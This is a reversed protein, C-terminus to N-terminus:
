PAMCAANAADVTLNVTRVNTVVDGGTIIVNPSAKYCDNGAEFGDIFLFYEGAPVLTATVDQDNEICAVTAGPCGAAITQAPASAGAAVAFATPVCANQADRLELRVGTVGAATASQPGCNPGSAGAVDIRATLGGTRTLTFATATVSTSTGAVLVQGSATATAMVQGVSNKLSANVTYTGSPQATTTGSGAVCDFSSRFGTSGDIPLFDFSVLTAGMQACTVAAGGASDSLTWSLMFKGTPPEADIRPAADAGGSGGGCGALVVVLLLAVVHIPKM